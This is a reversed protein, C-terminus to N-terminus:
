PVPPQFGRWEWRKSGLPSKGVEWVPHKERVGLIAEEVSFPTRWPSSKPRRPRDVLGAVGRDIFRKVWKYGTKRSIGFRSCLQSFNCGEVAALAMFENRLSMLNVEKWPM